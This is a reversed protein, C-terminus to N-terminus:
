NGAQLSRNRAQSNAHGNGDGNGNGHDIYKSRRDLFLMPPLEVDLLDGAAGATWMMM